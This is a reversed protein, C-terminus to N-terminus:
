QIIYVYYYFINKYLIYMTFFIIFTSYFSASRFLFIFLYIFHQSLTGWMGGLLIFVFLIFIYFLIFVFLYFLISILVM